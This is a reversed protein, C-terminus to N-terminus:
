GRSCAYHREGLPRHKQPELSPEVTSAVWDRLSEDLAVTPRWPTISQFRRTEPTLTFPEGQTLNREAACGPAPAICARWRAAPASYGGINWAQPRLSALNEAAAILVDVADSVHLVARRAAKDKLSPEPEISGLALERLWQVDGFEYQCSGYVTDFRIVAARIELRQAEALVWEDAAHKACRYASTWRTDGSEVALPACTSVLVLDPSPAANRIAETLAVTARTNVDYVAELDIGPTANAALHFVVDIGELARGFIFPERVDVPWLEVRDGYEDKLDLARALAGRASLKDVIRVNWQDNVLAHVLHHGIFGAGGTVLARRGTRVPSGPQHVVNIFQQVSYTGDIELLRHLLKPHGATDLLGFHYEREDEHFGDITPRQPHLDQAAYWYIRRAGADAATQYAHVQRMEDWKWTSYGTETIWLDRELGAADLVKRVKGFLHGWGHWSPEWVGPFGHLGVVDIHEIVGRQCMMRLWEPDVPAMGGLVTKWGRHKAWYAAAGIMECFRIWAPDLTWDWESPNNPENWLEIYEFHTGYKTLMGDLFDAFARSDRPPASTAPVIGLSPPTYLFCPLLEVERALRPICWDYWGPGGESYYDAWSIGTRLHRVGIRDLTSLVTEVREHEGPCFWELVGVTATM